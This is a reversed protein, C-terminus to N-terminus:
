KQGAAVVRQKEDLCKKVAPRAILKQHWAYCTPYKEKWEKDFDESVIFGTMANWPVFMLDAYTVKDGPVLYQQGTKSLHLDIVGLVRRIENGYREIASTINKEPHFHTFWAKQGYYPGQGSMQFHAWQDQYYKQPSSTYHLKGEKDYTQSDILM